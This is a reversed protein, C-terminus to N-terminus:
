MRRMIGLPKLRVTSLLNVELLISITGASSSYVILVNISAAMKVGLGHPADLRARSSPFSNHLRDDRSRVRKDGLELEIDACTFKAPDACSWARLDTCSGGKAPCATVVFFERRVTGGLGQGKARLKGASSKKERLEQVWSVHTEGQQGIRLAAISEVHDEGFGAVKSPSPSLLSNGFKNRGFGSASQLRLFCADSCPAPVTTIPVVGSSSRGALLVLLCSSDALLLVARQTTQDVIARVVVYSRGGTRWRQQLEAEEM